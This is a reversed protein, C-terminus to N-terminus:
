YNAIWLSSPLELSGLRGWSLPARTPLSIARPPGGMQGVGCDSKSNNFWVQNGCVISHPYYINKLLTVSILIEDGLRSHDTPSLTLPRLSGGHLACCLGDLTSVNVSALPRPELLRPHLPPVWREKGMCRFSTWRLIIMVMWKPTILGM